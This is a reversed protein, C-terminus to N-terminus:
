TKPFWHLLCLPGDLNLWWMQFDIPMIILHQLVNGVRAKHVNSSLMKEIIFNTLISSFILTGM